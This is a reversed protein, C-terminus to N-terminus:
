LAAAPFPAGHRGGGKRPGRLNSTPPSRGRGTGWLGANQLRQGPTPPVGPGPNNRRSWRLGISRKLAAGDGFARPSPPEEWGGVVGVRSGCCLCRVGGTDWAGSLGGAAGGALPAQGGRLAVSLQSPVGPGNPQLSPVAEGGRQSPASGAPILAGPAAGDAGM